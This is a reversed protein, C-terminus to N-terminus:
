LLHAKESNYEHLFTGLVMQQFFNPKALPFVSNNFDHPHSLILASSADIFIRLAKHSCNCTLWYVYLLSAQIRVQSQVYSHDAM